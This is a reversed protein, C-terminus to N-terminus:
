LLLYITLESGGHNFVFILLHTKKYINNVMVLIDGRYVLPNSTRILGSVIKDSWKNGVRTKTNYKNAYSQTKITICCISM